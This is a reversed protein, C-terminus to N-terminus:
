VAVRIELGRLATEVDPSTNSGAAINRTSTSALCQGILMPLNLLVPPHHIQPLELRISSDGWWRDLEVTLLGSRGRLLGDFTLLEALTARWPAFVSFVRWRGSEPLPLRYRATATLACAIPRGEPIGRRFVAVFTMGVGRAPLQVSGAISNAGADDHEGDPLGLQDLRVSAVSRAFSRFASPAMGILTTFRSTFTGLSNYGVDFCIETVCRDTSLLLEKARQLRLAYHFQIPPIGTVRHFVRNFHFPSLCAIEAFQQNDMPQDLQERMALIVREISRRHLLHNRGIVDVAPDPPATRSRPPLETAVLDRLESM